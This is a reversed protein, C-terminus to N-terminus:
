LLPESVFTSTQFGPQRMRTLASAKWPFLFILSLHSSLGWSTTCWIMVSTGEYSTFSWTHFNMCGVDILEEEYCWFSANGQTLTDALYPTSTGAGGWNLRSRSPTVALCHWLFVITKHDGLMLSPLIGQPPYVSAIAEGMSTLWLM